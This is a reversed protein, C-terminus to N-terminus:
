RARVRLDHRDGAPRVYHDLQVHVETAGLRQHVDGTQRVEALARIQPLEHMIRTYPVGAGLFVEGDREQWTRLEELRSVDLLGEPRLLDFNVQVMVDTGGAIVHAQPHAARLELAEELTRPLYADM